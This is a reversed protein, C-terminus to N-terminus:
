PRKVGNIRKRIIDKKIKSPMSIPWINLESSVAIIAEIDKLMAKKIDDLMIREISAIGSFIADIIFYLGKTTPSVANLFTIINWSGRDLIFVSIIMRPAYRKVVVRINIVRWFM